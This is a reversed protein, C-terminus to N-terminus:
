EYRKLMKDTKRDDLKQRLEANEIELQEIRQRLRESEYCCPDIDGKGIKRKKIQYEYWGPTGEPPPNDCGSFLFLAIFLPVIFLFLCFKRNTRM